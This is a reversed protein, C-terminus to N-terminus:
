HKIDSTVRTPVTKLPFSRSWRAGNDGQGQPIAQSYCKDDWATSRGESLASFLLLEFLGNIRYWGTKKKPPPTGILLVGSYNHCRHTPQIIDVMKWISKADRLNM